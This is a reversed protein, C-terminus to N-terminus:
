CFCSFNGRLSTASYYLMVYVKQLVKQMTWSGAGTLKLARGGHMESCSCEHRVAPCGVISISQQRHEATQSHNGESGPLKGLAAFINKPNAIIWKKRYVKQM